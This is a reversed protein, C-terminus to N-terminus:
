RAQNGPLRMRRDATRSQGRNSSVNVREIMQELLAVTRPDGHIEFTHGGSVDDRPTVLEGGHATILVPQGPPGPVTGGDAFSGGYPYSVISPM